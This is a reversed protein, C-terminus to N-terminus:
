FILLKRSKCEVSFKSNAGKKEHAGYRKNPHIQKFLIESKIFTIGPNKRRAQRVGSCIYPVENRYQM